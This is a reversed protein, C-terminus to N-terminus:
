PWIAQFGDSSTNECGGENLDSNICQSYVNGNVDIAWIYHAKADCSCNYAQSDCNDGDTTSISGDPLEGFLGDPNNRLILACVDVIALTNGNIVTTNGTLPLDGSHKASYAVAATQIQHKVTIYSTNRGSGIAGVISLTVVGALIALIVLVVLLEILTFGKKNAPGTKTHM